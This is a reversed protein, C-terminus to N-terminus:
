SKVVGKGRTCEKKKHPKLKKRTQPFSSRSVVNWANTKNCDAFQSPRSSPKEANEAGGNNWRCMCCYRGRANVSRVPAAIKISAKHDVFFILLFLVLSLYLFPFCACRVRCIAFPLRCCSAIPFSSSVFPWQMHRRSSNMEIWLSAGDYGYYTCGDM